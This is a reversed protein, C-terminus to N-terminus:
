GFYYYEKGLINPNVACIIRMSRDDESGDCLTRFKDKWYIRVAHGDADDDDEDTKRIRLPHMVKKTKISVM